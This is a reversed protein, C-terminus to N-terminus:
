IEYFQPVFIAKQKLHLVLMKGPHWMESDFNQEKQAPLFSQEIEEELHGFGETRLNNFWAPHYHGM